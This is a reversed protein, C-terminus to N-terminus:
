LMSGVPEASVRIANYYQIVTLYGPQYGHHIGHHITLITNFLPYPEAAVTGKAM